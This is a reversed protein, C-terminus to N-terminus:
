SLNYIINYIRESSKGDIYKFSLDMVRRRAHVFEDEGRIFSAMWELLEEFTFVKPGPTFENYDIYLGRGDKTYKELDYPYFIIPKGTLLFDFYVSSYDTILIDVKNLIPYVDFNSPPIVIRDYNDELKVTILPHLKMIFYTNTRNLFNNLKEFDIIKNINYDKSSIEDDRFTPMYLIVKADKNFSKLRDYTGYADYELHERSTSDFMIDNRPFGTILINEKKVRFASVFNDVFFDSSCIIYDYKTFLWPIFYMYIFKNKHWFLNKADHEIKKIPTGHWLQVKVAGGCCWFNVSDFYSDSFIYKAMLNYYIGKLGYMYCANYNREKLRKIIDKDKSIWVSTIEKKHNNSVYLFMYKSNDSFRKGSWSGFLWIDKRRPILFALLYFTHKLMLISSKLLYKPISYYTPFHNVNKFINRIKNVNNM